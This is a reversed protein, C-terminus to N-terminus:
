MSIKLQSGVNTKSVDIRTQFAERLHPVHTVMLICAFDPAIANVAAILRECGAADQTGFGEDVILM